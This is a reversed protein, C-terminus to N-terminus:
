RLQFIGGAAEQPQMQQRLLGKLISEANSLLRERTPKVTPDVSLRLTEGDTIGLEDCSKQPILITDPDDIADIIANDAIYRRGERLAKTIEVIDRPLLMGRAKKDDTGWARVPVNMFNSDGTYCRTIQVATEGGRYPVIFGGFSSRIPIFNVVGYGEVRAWEIGPDSDVSISHATKIPNM